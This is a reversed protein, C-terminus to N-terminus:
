FPAHTYLFSFMASLPSLPRYAPVQLGSEKYGWMCIGVNWTAFDGM